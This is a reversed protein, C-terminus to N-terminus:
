GVLSFIPVFGVLHSKKSSESSYRHVIHHICLHSFHERFYPVIRCLIRAVIVQMRSKLKAFDNENPIFVNTTLDKANTNLDSKWYLHTSSIRNIAMYGLAWNYYINKRETGPRHVHVMKGVNDECLTFGPHLM